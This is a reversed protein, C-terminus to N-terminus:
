LLKESSTFSAPVSYYCIICLLIQLSFSKSQLMYVDLNSFRLEYLCIQLYIKKEKRGKKIKKEKKKRVLFTLSKMFPDAVFILREPFTEDHWKIGKM